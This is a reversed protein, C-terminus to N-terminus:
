DQTSPIFLVLERSESKFQTFILLLWAELRPEPKGAQRLCTSEKTYSTEFTDLSRITEALM